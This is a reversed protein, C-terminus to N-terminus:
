LLCSHKQLAQEVDKQEIGIYKQTIEPSSHQLLRQVIVINYNNNVYINTAFFKRFSHTSVDTYAEGLYECVIRLQKQVQRETIPFIIEHPKIGNELTFMKIYNYIDNLVTFERKKGTKKEIIDLRYREGDRIIDNLRLNLIDSIRLGLNAEIVLCTAIRNNGRCGSFGKRMTEIIEQYMEQTLAITKKNM